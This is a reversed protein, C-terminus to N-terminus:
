QVKYSMFRCPKESHKNEDITELLQNQIKDLVTYFLM